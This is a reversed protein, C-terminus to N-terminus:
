NNEKRTMAASSSGALFIELILGNVPEPLRKSPFGDVCDITGAEEGMNLRCWGTERLPALSELDDFGAECSGRPFSTNPEVTFLGWFSAGFTHRVKKNKIQPGIYQLFQALMSRKMNDKPINPQGLACCDLAKESPPLALIELM